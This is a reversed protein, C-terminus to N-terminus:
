KKPPAGGEELESKQFSCYNRLAIMEADTLKMGKPMPNDVRSIADSVRLRMKWSPALLNAPMVWGNKVGQEGSHCKACRNKLVAAGDMNASTPSRQPQPPPSQQAPPNSQAPPMSMQPQPEEAPQNQNQQLAAAREAQLREITDQQRDVVKGLIKSQQEIILLQRAKEDDQAAYGVYSARYSVTYPTAYYTPAYNQTYSYPAAYSYAAASVKGYNVAAAPAYVTSCAGTGGVVVGALLLAIM